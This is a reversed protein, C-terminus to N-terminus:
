TDAQPLVFPTKHEDLLRSSLSKAQKVGQMQFPWDSQKCIMVFTTTVAGRKKCRVHRQGGRSRVRRIREEEGKGRNDSRHLMLGHKGIM